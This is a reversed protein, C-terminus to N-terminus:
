IGKSYFFEEIPAGDNARVLAQFEPELAQAEISGIQPFLAVAAPIAGWLCM